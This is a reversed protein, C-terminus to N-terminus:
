ILEIKSVIAAIIKNIEPNLEDKLIIELTINFNKKSRNGSNKCYIEKIKKISINKGELGFYNRSYIYRDFHLTITHESIIPHGLQKVM